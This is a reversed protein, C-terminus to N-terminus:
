KNVWFRAVDTTFVAVDRYSRTMPRTQACAARHFCLSWICSERQMCFCFLTPPTQRHSTVPPLLSAIVRRDPIHDSHGTPLRAHHVHSSRAAQQNVGTHKRATFNFWIACLQFSKLFWSLVSEVLCNFDNNSSTEVLPQFVWELVLNLKKEKDMRLFKLLM